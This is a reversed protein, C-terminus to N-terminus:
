SMLYFNNDQDLVLNENCPFKYHSSPLILFWIKSM